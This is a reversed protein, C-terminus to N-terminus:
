HIFFLQILSRVDEIAWTIEELLMKYLPVAIQVPMNILRDGLIIGLRGQQSLELLKKHAAQNAKSKEL